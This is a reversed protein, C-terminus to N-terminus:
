KENKGNQMMQFNMMSKCIHTQSLKQKNKKKLLNINKKLNQTQITRLGYNSGHLLNVCLLCIELKAKIEKMKLKQKKHKIEM